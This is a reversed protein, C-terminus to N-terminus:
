WEARYEKDAEPEPKVGSPLRLGSKDEQIKGTKLHRSIATRVAPALKDAGTEKYEAVLDITRNKDIPEETRVVAYVLESISLEASLGTDMVDRATVKVADDSFDLRYGKPSEKEFINAKRHFLGVDLTNKGVPSTKLEWVNRSANTTFISGFLLGEKNIHSLTLSTRGIWRLAQFYELVQSAEDLTGGTALGLSDVIIVVEEDGWTRDCYDKIYDAEQALPHACRRYKINPTEPLGMGKQVWKIRRGVEVADTEYDLVLVNAPTVVVQHDTNVYGSNTLLVSFWISLTSKGSSGAGYLLSPQDKLIFPALSFEVRDPVEVSAIDVIEEGQRHADIVRGALSECFLEWDVGYDPEPIRRNLKKWFQDIGSVSTLTPSSRVVPQDDVMIAVEASLRGSSDRLRSIYAEVSHGNLDESYYYGSGRREFITM